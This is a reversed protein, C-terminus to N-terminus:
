FPMHPQLNNLDHQFAPKLTAKFVGLSSIPMFVSLVEFLVGVVLVGWAERAFRHRFRRERGFFGEDAGKSM